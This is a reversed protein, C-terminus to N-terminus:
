KNFLYKFRRLHKMYVEPFLMSVIEFRSSITQLLQRISWHERYALHANWYTEIFRKRNGKFHLIKQKRFATLITKPNDEPSYNYVECPIFLIKTNDIEIFNSQRQNFQNLGIVDMLAYQDCWFIDSKFYKERYVSLVKELFSVVKEPNHRSIFMIGWNIPMNEHKRYTLAIDFDQHFLSDLDGNILIDSDLMVLNNACGNQQVYNIQCFLRSFMVPADAEINSRFIDIDNNIKDFCTERDSLVVKNCQPHFLEASRFMLGILVFYRNRLTSSLSNIAKAQTRKLDIHFTAFTIM